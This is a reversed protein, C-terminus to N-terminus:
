LKNKLTATREQPPMNGMRSGKGGPGSRTSAKTVSVTFTLVGDDLLTENSMM